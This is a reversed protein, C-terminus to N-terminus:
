HHTNIIDTERRTRVSYGSSLNYHKGQLNIAYTPTLGGLFDWEGKSRILGLNLGLLRGLATEGRMSLNIRQESEGSWKGGEETLDYLFLFNGTVRASATGCLSVGVLCAFFISSLLRFRISDNYM